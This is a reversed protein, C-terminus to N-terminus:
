NEPLSNLFDKVEDAIFQSSEYHVYHGTSLLSSQGRFLSAIYTELTDKWGTVSADQESSIFFYMPTNTPVGEELVTQANEDLYSFEEIMNKSMSKKYFLAMYEDKEEESLSDLGLLPITQELESIPMLRSLGIRSMFGAMQLQSEPVNTLLDVAEPLLPDLGIIAQVEEPYTQAWYIAELGSMSHAFLTYPGHEGAQELAAKTEELLTAIDRPEDTIDSYGYGPREVVVIRYDDVFKSWLPKFDLMPASTGHGSLFVLTQEGQGEQYIHILHGNVEVLDGPATYMDQEQNLQVRHNIFVGLIGLTLLGIVSLLVIIVIKLM